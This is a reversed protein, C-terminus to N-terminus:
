GERWSLKTVAACARRFTTRRAREFIQPPSGVWGGPMQLVILGFLKRKHCNTLIHFCRHARDSTM